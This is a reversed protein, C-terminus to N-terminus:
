KCPMTGFLVPTSVGSINSVVVTYVNNMVIIIFLLSDFCDGFGLTTCKRHKVTDSVIIPCSSSITTVVCNLVSFEENVLLPICTAM